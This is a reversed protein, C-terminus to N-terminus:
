QIVSNQKWSLWIKAMRPHPIKVFTLNLTHEDIHVYRSTRVFYYYIIIIIIIIFYYYNRWLSNSVESFLKIASYM